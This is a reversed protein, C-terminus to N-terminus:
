PGTEVPLETRASWDSFSGDYMRTTYGLKRAVMYLMSAQFGTRCYTVVTKGSAAGAAELRSRLEAEPLLKGEANLLTQWYINKSGPIRGAQHQDAPRADIVAVNADQRHANVWAADVVLEAQANPTFTSAATTATGTEVAAGLARWAALGGDLYALDRHDLYQLTFIARAALLPETNSYAVVRTDNRVGLKEFTAKLAATEPLENQLGNREVVLESFLLMQSGPIHGGEFEQATRVVHLVTLGQSSQLEQASLISITPTPEPPVPDDDGCAMALTLVCSLVLYRM